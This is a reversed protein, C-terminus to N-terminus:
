TSSSNDQKNSHTLANFKAGEELNNIMEIIINKIYHNPSLNSNVFTLSNLKRSIRLDGQWLTIIADYDGIGHYLSYSRDPHKAKWDLLYKILEYM